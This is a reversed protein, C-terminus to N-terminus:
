WGLLEAALRHKSAKKTAPGTGEAFPNLRTCGWRLPRDWLLLLRRCCCCCCCCCARIPPRGVVKLPLAYLLLQLEDGRSPIGSPEDGRRLGVATSTPADGGQTVAVVGRDDDELLSGVSVVAAVAPARALPWSPLLRLLAAAAPVPASPSRAPLLFTASSCFSFSCRDIPASSLRAILRPCSTLEKAITPAAAASNPPPPIALALTTLCCGQCVRGAEHVDVNRAM